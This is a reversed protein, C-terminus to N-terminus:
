LFLSFMFKHRFSIYLFICVNFSVEPIENKKDMDGFVPWVVAEQIEHLRQLNM